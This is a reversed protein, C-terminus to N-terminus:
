CKMKVKHVVEHKGGLALALLDDEKVLWAENFEAAVGCLQETVEKAVQQAEQLTIARYHKSLEAPPKLFRGLTTHLMANNAVVQKVLRVSDKQKERSKFQERLRDRLISVETGQVTQWAATRIMCVCVYVFRMCVSHTLHCSLYMCVSVALSLFLPLPPIVTGVLVGGPTVFVRELMVFAPCGKRSMDEVPETKNGYIAYMDGRNSVTGTSRIATEIARIEEAQAALTPPSWPDQIHVHVYIDVCM